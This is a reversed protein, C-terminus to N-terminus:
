NDIGAEHTSADIIQLVVLSPTVERKIGSNEEKDPRGRLATTTTATPGNKNIILSHHQHQCRLDDKKSHKKICPLHFHHWGISILVMLCPHQFHPTLIGGFTEKASKKFAHKRAVNSFIIAPDKKLKAARM